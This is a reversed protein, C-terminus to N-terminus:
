ASQIDVQLPAALDASVWPAATIPNTGDIQQFWSFGVGPTKAAGTGFYGTGSSGYGLKVQTPTSGPPTALRANQAVAIVSYVTPQVTGVTYEQDKATTNAYTPNADSHNVGNINTYTNNTWTTTTGAGTLALTNLGLLARTDSDAVIFESWSWSTSSGGGYAGLIVTDFNTLGTIVTSGSYSIILNNNLYVNVTSSAGLNSVQIDLKGGGSTGLAAISTGSEVALQTQTTGNYSSLAIQSPNAAAVTLALFSNSGSSGFGALLNSELATANGGVFYAHISLWASTVAGGNFPFSRAQATGNGNTMQIDCRAWGSRFHGSTTDVSLSGLTVWDIDEGGAWLINM